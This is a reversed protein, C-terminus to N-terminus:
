PGPRLARWFRVDVGRSCTAGGSRPDSCRCRLPLRRGVPRSHATRRPVSPLSMHNLGRRRAPPRAAPSDLQYWGEKVRGLLLSARGEASGLACRARAVFVCPSESPPLAQFHIEKRACNSLGSTSKSGGGPRPFLRSFEGWKPPLSPLWDAWRAYAGPGASLM